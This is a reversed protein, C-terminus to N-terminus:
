CLQRGLLQGPNSERVDCCYSVNKGRLHITFSDGVLLNMVIISMIIVFVLYFLFTTTQYPLMAYKEYRREQPTDYFVSDYSLDGIMMVATKMFSHSVTM